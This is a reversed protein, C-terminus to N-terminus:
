LLWFLSTNDVAQRTTAPPLAPDYHEWRAAPVLSGLCPWSPHDAGPHPDPERPDEGPAAGQLRRLAHTPKPGAMAMSLGLGSGM